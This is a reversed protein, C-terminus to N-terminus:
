YADPIVPGPFKWDNDKIGNYSPSGSYSSYHPDNKIANLMANQDTSSVSSIGKLVKMAISEGVAFKVDSLPTEMGPGVPEYLRMRKDESFICQATFAFAESKRRPLWNAARDDMVAHVLEHAILAQEKVGPASLFGLKLTDNIPDYEGDIGPVYRIRIRRNEIHEKVKRFDGSNIAFDFMTFKLKIITSACTRLLDLVAQRARDHDDLKPITVSIPTKTFIHGRQKSGDTMKVSDDSSFSYNKGDNSKSCGVFHKLYWNIEEPVRTKFNYECLDTPNSWGDRSAVNQWSDGDKVFYV